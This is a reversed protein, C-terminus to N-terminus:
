APESIRGMEVSVRLDWRQVPSPGVLQRELMSDRKTRGPDSFLGAGILCHGGELPLIFFFFPKLKNDPFNEGWTIRVLFFHKVAATKGPM